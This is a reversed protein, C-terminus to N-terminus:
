TTFKGDVKLVAGDDAHLGDKKLLAKSKEFTMLNSERSMNALPIYGSSPGQRKTSAQANATSAAAGGTAAGGGAKRKKPQNVPLAPTGTVPDKGVSPSKEPQESGEASIFRTASTDTAVRKPDKSDTATNNPRTTVPKAPPAVFDFDMDQDEAYNPRANTNRNRSRTGYPSPDALSTDEAQPESDQDATRLEPEQSKVAAANKNNSSPMSIEDNTPGDQQMAAVEAQASASNSMNQDHSQPVGLSDM